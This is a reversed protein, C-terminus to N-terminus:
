RSVSQLGLLQSVTQFQYGRAKLTAIIHPLAAVTESRNGGGEHMLIIAGPKAGNVASQYIADTGPMTFDKTDVSWLITLLGLKRAITNTRANYNGHPPRYMCTHYGTTRLIKAQTKSLQDRAKTTSLPPLDIHDFTHDGIEDGAAIVQRMLDERGTMNRGIEFFTAPVDNAGLIRLIAPTFDSPGDDFTLAVVKRTTTASRRVQAGAAVCGSSLPAAPVTSAPPDAQARPTSTHHVAGAILVAGTVIPILLRTRAM